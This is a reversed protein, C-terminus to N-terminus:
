CRKQFLLTVLLPLGCLLGLENLFNSETRHSLSPMGEEPQSPLDMLLYKGKDQLEYWVHCTWWLRVQLSLRLAISVRLGLPPLMQILLARAQSRLSTRLFM